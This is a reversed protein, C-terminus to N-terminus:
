SKKPQEKGGTPATTTASSSNNSSTNGAKAKDKEKEKEKQAKVRAQREATAKAAQEVLPTLKGKEALCKLFNFIFPVYNHKRRVNEIKWTRYRTEEAELAGQLAKEEEEAANIADKLEAPNSPIPAEDSSTDMSSDMGGASLKNLM